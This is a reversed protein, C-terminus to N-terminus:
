FRVFPLVAGLLQTFPDPAYQVQPQYVVPSGALAALLQQGQQLAAQARRAAYDANLSALLGSTQNEGLSSLVGARQAGSLLAQEARRREIDFIGGGEGSLGALVNRKM